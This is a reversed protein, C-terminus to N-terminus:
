PSKRAAVIENWTQISRVSCCATKFRPFVVHAASVLEDQSNLPSISHVDRMQVASSHEFNQLEDRLLRRVMSHLKRFSGRRACGM